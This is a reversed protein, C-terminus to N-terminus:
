GDARGGPRPPPQSLQVIVDEISTRQSRCETVGLDWNGLERFWEAEDSAADLMVRLEDPGLLEPARALFRSGAIRAAVERARGPARVVQVRGTGGHRALVAALPGADILEGKRLLGISSCLGELEALVHSSLIITAGEAAQARLADRLEIRALPDLGSAPEDLIMLRPRHLLAKALELRQRMGLSLKHCFDQGRERLNVAELCEIARRRAVGKGRLGYAGATFVLYELARLDSPLPSLDRMYAIKSRVAEPELDLRHGLIRIDGHTPTLLTALVRFASTKGAGNPGLLGFIEGTPVRFVVERLAVESGYDVRLGRVQLADGDRFNEPRTWRSGDLVGDSKPQDFGVGADKDDVAGSCALFDAASTPSGFSIEANLRPM